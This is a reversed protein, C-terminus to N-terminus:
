SSRFLKAEMWRKKWVPWVKELQAQDINHENIFRAKAEPLSLGEKLYSLLLYQEQPLDHLSIQYNHRLIVCYSAHLGPIQPERGNKFETYFWRVPFRFRMLYCVPLLLLDGEPTDATALQYDDEAKEEFAVGIINELESLEIMFDPWDEKPGEGQDPRNTQLFDAFGTGLEALNYNHSPHISLYEDAFASFLEPGLAYELASFQQAMCNRLRAIYGRQYIALHEHAPLKESHHIIADLRLGQLKEPLKANAKGLQQYPDLLMEMMWQQFSALPIETTEEVAM